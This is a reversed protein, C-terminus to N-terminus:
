LFSWEWWNVRTLLERALTKSKKFFTNWRAPLEIYVLSTELKCLGM